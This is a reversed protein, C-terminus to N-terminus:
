FKSSSSIVWFDNPTFNIKKQLTVAIEQPEKDLKQLISPVIGGGQLTMVTALHFPTMDSHSLKGPLQMAGQIAEASKTTLQDPNIM